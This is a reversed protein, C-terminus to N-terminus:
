CFTPLNLFASIMNKRYVANGGVGVILKVRLFKYTFERNMYLGPEPPETLLLLVDETIFRVLAPDNSEEISIVPMFSFDLSDDM